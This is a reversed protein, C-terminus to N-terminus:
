PPVKRGDVGTGPQGQGLGGGEGAPAAVRPAAGAGGRGLPPALVPRRRSRALAERRWTGKRGGSDRSPSYRLDTGGARGARSTRGMGGTGAGGNGVAAPVRRKAVAHM